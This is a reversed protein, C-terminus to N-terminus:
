DTHRTHLARMFAYLAPLTGHFCGNAAPVVAFIFLIRCPRTYRRVQWLLPSFLPL